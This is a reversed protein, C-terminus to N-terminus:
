KSKTKASPHEPGYKVLEFAFYVFVFGAMLVVAIFDGYTALYFSKSLITVLSIIPSVLAVVLLSIRM